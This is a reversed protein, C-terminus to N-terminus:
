KYQQVNESMGSEFNAGKNNAIPMQLIESDIQKWFMRCFRKAVLFNYADIDQQHYRLILAPVPDGNRIYTERIFRAYDTLRRKLRTIRICMILLYLVCIGAAAALALLWKMTILDLEDM